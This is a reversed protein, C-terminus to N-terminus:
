KKKKIYAQTNNIYEYNIKIGKKNEAIAAKMKLFVEEYEITHAKNSELILQARNNYSQVSDLTMRAKKCDPLTPKKSLRTNVIQLFDSHYAAATNLENAVLNNNWVDLNRANVTNAPDASYYHILDIYQREKVTKSLYLRLSDPYNFVPSHSITLSDNEFNKKTFPYKLLQWLPDLPFHDKIFVKPKPIFYKNSFRKVYKNEQNLYGSSWTIDLMVWSSDVRLVNWAHLMEPINGEPTKVYGCVLFCPISSAKCFDVMLNSYGECLAKKSKLVDLSKQGTSIINNISFIQMLNLENLHEVDYSINLAIWTYYARARDEQTLFNTNVFTTITDFPAEPKQKSFTFVKNDIINYYDAKTVQANLSLLSLNLVFTYFLIYRM